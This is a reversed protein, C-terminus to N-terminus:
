HKAPRADSRQRPVRTFSPPPSTTALSTPASFPTGSSATTGALDVMLAINGNSCPAVLFRERLRALGPTADPWADLRHWALNLKDRTAADVDALGFADLVIDLNRRHLADLPVDRLPKQGGPM